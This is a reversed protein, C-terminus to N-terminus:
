ASWVCGSLKPHLHWIAPRLLDNCPIPLLKEKWIYLIRHLYTLVCPDDWQDGDKSNVTLREPGSCNLQTLTKLFNGLYQYFVLFVRLEWQNRGVTVRVKQCIFISNLNVEDTLTFIMDSVNCSLICISATRLAPIARTQAFTNWDNECDPTIVSHCSFQLIFAHFGFVFHHLTIM